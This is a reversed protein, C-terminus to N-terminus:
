FSHRIGFELGSSNGGATTPAYGGGVSFTKGTGKNSVQSITSYIATRKSLDYVYGLAVQNADNAVGDAKLATYSFRLQGPGVNWQTGVMNATTKTVGVKNQGWLYMLKAPGFQYNIAFNSQTYDGTAYNTKGTSLALSLPGSSYGIRAGFYKGDDSTPAGSLQEGMAYMIHGNLGGLNSPLIYGISNSARVNTRVTTGGANVPYFLQGANGVGNTGFPHMSVTLNNFTPVYDRGLRIEGWSGELGVTSRRGFTLGGGGISDKNNTSTNGGAGTDSNFAAELWFNAKLGGGLDESGRVGIRSSTNGDPSLLMTSGVGSANASLVAADFVGFLNVNANQAQAAASCLALAALALPRVAKM